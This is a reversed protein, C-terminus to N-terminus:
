RSRGRRRQEDAALAREADGGLDRTCAGPRARRADAVSSATKGSATTPPAVRHARDDALAEPRARELQEVARRDVVHAGFAGNVSGARVGARDHEDLEVALGVPM